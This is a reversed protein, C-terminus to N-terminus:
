KKIKPRFLPIVEKKIFDVLDYNVSILSSKKSVYELAEDFNKFKHSYFLYLAAITPSRSIGGKCMILIPTNKAKIQKDISELIKIFQKPKNEGYGDIIPHCEDAKFDLPSASLYIVYKIDKLTVELKSTKGNIFIEDTIKEINHM